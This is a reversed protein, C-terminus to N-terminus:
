ILPERVAWFAWRLHRKVPLYERIRQSYVEGGLAATSVLLGGSFVSTAKANITIDSILQEEGMASGLLILGDVWGAGAAVLCFSAFYIM